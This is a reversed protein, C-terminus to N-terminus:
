AAPSRPIPEHRGWEGPTPQARLGKALLWVALFIESLLSLLLLGKLMGGYAPIAFSVMPVAVLLLSAFVGFRALSRPVYGSRAFLAFFLAYGLGMFIWAVYIGSNVAQQTVAALRTLQDTNFVESTSAMHLGYKTMRPMITAAGVFAGGLRFLLALQAFRRNVPELVVYLAFALVVVIVWALGVGLISARWLQANEVVFQATQAFTEGGRAIVTPFDGAIEILHALIAVGAIRAWTRQEAKVEV